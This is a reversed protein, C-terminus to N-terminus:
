EFIDWAALPFIFALFLNGYIQVRESGPAYFLVAGDFLVALTCALTLFVYTRQLRLALIRVLLGLDFAAAAYETWHNIESLMLYSIRNSYM